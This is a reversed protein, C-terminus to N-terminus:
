NRVAMHYNYNNFIDLFGQPDCLPCQRVEAHIKLSVDIGGAVWPVRFRKVNQPPFLAVMRSQVLSERLLAAEDDM